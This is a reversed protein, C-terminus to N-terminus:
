KDRKVSGLGMCEGEFATTFASGLPGVLGIGVMLLAGMERAVIV